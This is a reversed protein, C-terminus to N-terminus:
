GNRQELEAVQRAYQELPVGLRKAIAVQSQTLTVKKASSTRGSPAVVTAPKKVPTAPKEDRIDEEFQDPFVQRIRKNIADYYEDSRPDIGQKVLKTHTGLAVATMEDDSGFWKNKARWREAKPDATQPQQETRESVTVSEEQERLQKNRTPGAREVQNQAKTFAEQAEILADTDGAEHAARLASKAQALQAEALEKATAQYVSHGAELQRKLRANEKAQADAFRLAEAHERELAEKRRREDHRAHTLESIRKRVGESYEKLEDEDPDTVEKSLPKRGRDQAPTDDVVEVNVEDVAEKKNPKEDAEDPFTFEVKDIAPM